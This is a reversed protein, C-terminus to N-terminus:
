LSVRCLIAAFHYSVTYEQLASASGSATSLRTSLQLWHESEERGRFSNMECLELLTITLGLEQLGMFRRIRPRTIMATVLGAARM